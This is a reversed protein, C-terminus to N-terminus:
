EAPLCCVIASDGWPCSTVAGPLTHCDLGPPFDGDACAVVDGHGPYTTECFSAMQAETFDCCDSPEFCAGLASFVPQIDCSEEHIDCVSVGCSSVLGALALVSFLQHTGM